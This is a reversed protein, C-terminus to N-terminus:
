LVNAVLRRQRESLQAGGQPHSRSSQPCSLHGSRAQQPLPDPFPPPARWGAQTLYPLPGRKASYDYSTTTKASKGHAQLRQSLKVWRVPERCRRGKKQIFQGFLFDNFFRMFFPQPQPAAATSLAAWSLM